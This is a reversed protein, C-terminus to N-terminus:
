YNIKLDINKLTVELERKIQIIAQELTPKPTIYHSNAYIKIVDLNKVLDGTL